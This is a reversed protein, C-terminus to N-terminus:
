WQVWRIPDSGTYRYTNTGPVQQSTVNNVRAVYVDVNSYGGQRVIARHIGAAQQGTLYDGGTRLNRYQGTGTNYSDVIRGMQTEVYKRGGGGGPKNFGRQFKNFGAGDSVYRAAGKVEVFVYKGSETRLIVDLGNGRRNAISGVVEFNENLGEPGNGRRLQEIVHAEAPEGIEQTCSNHAWVSVNGERGSVFYTHYDQIRFNYVTTVQGSDAVGEV